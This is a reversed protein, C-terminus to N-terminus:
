CIEFQKIKQYSFYYKDLINGYKRTNKATNQYYIRPGVTWIQDSKQDIWFHELFKQLRDPIM